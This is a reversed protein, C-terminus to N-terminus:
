TYGNGVREEKGDSLMLVGEGMSSGEWHVSKKEEKKGGLSFGISSKAKKVGAGTGNGNSQPAGLESGGHSSAKDKGAPRLISIPRRETKAKTSVADGEARDRSGYDGEGM